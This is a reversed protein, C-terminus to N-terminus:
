IDTDVNIATVSWSSAGIASTTRTVTFTTLPTARLRLSITLNLTGPSTMVKQSPTFAWATGSGTAEASTLSAVSSTAEVKFIEYLVANGSTGDETLAPITGALTYIDAAITTPLAPMTFTYPNVLAGAFTSGDVDNGNYKLTSPVLFSSTPLRVTIAVQNGNIEDPAVEIAGTLLTPNTISYVKISESPDDLNLTGGQITDLNIGSIYSKTLKVPNVLAKDSLVVDVNKYGTTINLVTDAFFRSAVEISWTYTYEGLSTATNDQILTSTVGQVVTNATSVWHGGGDIDIKVEDVLYRQSANTSSVTGSGSFYLYSTFDEGTFAYSAGSTSGDKSIDTTIYPYIYVMESRYIKLPLGGVTENSTIEVDVQYSGTPLSIPTTATTAPNIPIIDPDISTNTLDYVVAESSWQSSSEDWKKITLQATNLRVELALDMTIAAINLNGSLGEIPELTVNVTDTVNGESVVINEVTKTASAQAPTGVYATVTLSWTGEGIELISDTSTLEQTTVLSDHDNFLELKFSSFNSFEPGVSRDQGAGAAGIHLAIGTKGSAETAPEALPSSCGSLALMGALLFASIIRIKNKM